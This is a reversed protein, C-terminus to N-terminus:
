NKPRRPIHQKSKTKRGPKAPSDYTYSAKGPVKFKIGIFMLKTILLPRVYSIEVILYEVLPNIAVIVLKELVKLLM